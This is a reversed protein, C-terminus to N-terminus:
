RYQYIFRRGKLTHADKRALILKEVPYIREIFVQNAGDLVSTRDSSLALHFKGLNRYKLYGSDKKLEAFTFRDPGEALYPWFEKLHGKTDAVYKYEIDFELGQVKFSCAYPGAKLFEKIVGACNTIQPSLVEDLVQYKAVLRATIPVSNSPQSIHPVHSSLLCFSLLLKM